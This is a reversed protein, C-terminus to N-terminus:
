LGLQKKAAVFEAESLHGACRWSILAQLRDFFMQHSVSSQSTASCVSMSDDLATCQSLSSESFINQSAPATCQSLCSESFVNQSAPTFRPEPADHGVSSYLRKRILEIEASPSAITDGELTMRVKQMFPDLEQTNRRAWALEGALLWRSWCIACAKLAKGKRPSTPQNFRVYQLRTALQETEREDPLGNRWATLEFPGTFLFAVEEDVVFDARSGDTKAVGVLTPLGELLRNWTGEDIRLGQEDKTPHGPSYRFDQWLLVEHGRINQLPCFSDAQPTPMAKFIDYLPQTVTTKGSDRGGVIMLANGKGKGSTLTEFVQHRFDETPVHQFSLISEYVDACRGNSNTCSRTIGNKLM